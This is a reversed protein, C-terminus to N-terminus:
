NRFALIALDSGTPFPRGYKSHLALKIEAERHTKNPVTGHKYPDQPFQMSVNMLVECDCHGGEKFLFSVIADEDLGREYLFKRTITFKMDCPNQELSAQLYDFMEEFEVLDMPLAAMFAEQRTPEKIEAESSATVNNETDGLFYINALISGIFLISAALRFISTKYFPIPKLSKDENNFLQEQAAVGLGTPSEVANEFALKELADQIAQYEKLLTENQEILLFLERERRASLQGLALMELEGDEINYTGM